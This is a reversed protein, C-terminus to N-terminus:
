GAESVACGKENGAQGEERKCTFAREAQHCLLEPCHAIIDTIKLPNGM